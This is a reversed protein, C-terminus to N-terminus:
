KPLGRVEPLLGMEGLRTVVQRWDQERVLAATPGVREEILRALRTSSVIQDMLEEQSIRLLVVRELHAETGQSDWRTLAEELARPVPAETIERLFSLVRPVSIDQRRARELSAPTLRYVFREGTQVWEAVRALQFREYRQAPPVSIRFRSRLRSPSSTTQSPPDRLDLFASGSQSLRFACPPQDDGTAEIDILGLWVMPRTLLYRILRGEVADWSEFGSLYAGTAEDRIYWTDYDGAPRQFDPDVQKIAAVFADLAYWTAPSCASLHRLVAQRALVPDNHWAGTDEPRLTPVHFLDNWTSDNRWTEAMACRQSFTDSQLWATVPEPNLRLREKEDDTLWGIRSALHRLFAFREQDQDQLRRSLNEKQRDRWRRDPGLRLRENHVYALLTCADDLLLDRHSLTASPAGIPDLAITPQAVDPTSLHRRIERPVLVAEYVGDPGREFTQFLFGRYWLGEAPSVPDEWPREREMRGPGMARIDGWERAFVRRPMHGDSALLARLAEAQDDPLRGQAQRIAEPDSMVETLELAAERQRSVTLPIEWFLAMARLRVLNTDLLSQRLLPMISINYLPPHRIFLQREAIDLKCFRALPSYDKAFLAM